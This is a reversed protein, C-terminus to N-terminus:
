KSATGTAGASVTALRFASALKIQHDFWATLQFYNIGKQYDKYQEYLTSDIEYNLQAFSFDGVIPTTAASTFTVPAGLVREPQADYLTSNGNSLTKIINYYDTRSMLIHANDQFADDLDALAKTIADYLDSGEIKKIGVSADYFSMHQLEAVSQTTALSVSREKLQLASSLANNIYEVLATDTGHLITDSVGARVKMENRGFKVEDGKLEMEKAAEGDQIFADDDLEFAIRPLILNTITSVTELGRLPNTAMPESVLQNSVNIPLLDGGKSTSDDQLQQKIGAWKEAFEANDPKVTKRIYAAEAKILLDKENKPEESKKAKFKARQENQKVNVQKELADYRTQLDKEKVQLDEIEKGIGETVPSSAKEVIEEDIKKIQQGINYLSQQMEFLEM